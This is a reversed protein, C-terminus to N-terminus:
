DKRRIADRVREYWRGGIRLPAGLLRRREIAKYARARRLKWYFPNTKDFVYAFMPKM